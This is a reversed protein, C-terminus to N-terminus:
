YHHAAEAHDRLPLNSVQEVAAGRNFLWQSTRGPLVAHPLDTIPRDFWLHVATIPASELQDIGSLEPLAVRLPEDLLGGIRRWPVALIVADCAALQGSNLEIERVGSADGTVQKVPCGLRVDIGHRDLWH